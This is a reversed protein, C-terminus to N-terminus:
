RSAGGTTEISRNDVSYDEGEAEAEFSLLSSRPKTMFLVLAHSKLEADTKPDAVWEMLRRKAEENGLRVMAGLVDAGVKYPMRAKIWHTLLTVLPATDEEKRRRALLEIVKRTDTIQRRTPGITTHNNLNMDKQRM